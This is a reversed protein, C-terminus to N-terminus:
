PPSFTGAPVIAGKSVAGGLWQELAPDMGPPSARV